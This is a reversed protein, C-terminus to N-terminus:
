TNWHYTQSESSHNVKLILKLQITRCHNAVLFQQIMADKHTFHYQTSTFQFQCGFYKTMKQLLLQCIVIQSVVQTRTNSDYDSRTVISRRKGSTPLLNVNRFFCKACIFAV